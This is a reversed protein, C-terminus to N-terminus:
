KSPVSGPPLPARVPRPPPVDPTWNRALYAVITKAEEDSAPTGFKRMKEVTKQWQGETLRQQTVYESTHCLLCKAQVLSRAPDDPLQGDVLATTKEDLALSNNAVWAVAGVLVAAAILSRNV